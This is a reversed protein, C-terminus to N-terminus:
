PSDSVSCSSELPTRHLISRTKASALISPGSKTATMAQPVEPPLSLANIRRQNFPPETERLSHARFPRPHPRYWPVILKLEVPAHTRFRFSHPSLLASLITM